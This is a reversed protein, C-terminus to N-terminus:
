WDYRFDGMNQTSTKIKKIAFPRLFSIIMLILSFNARRRNMRKLNDNYIELIDGEIEEVLESKCFWHLFDMAWEPAQQLQQPNDSM